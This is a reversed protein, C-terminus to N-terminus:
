TEMESRSSSNIITLTRKISNTKAQLLTDSPLVIVTRMIILRVIKLAGLDVLRKTKSRSSFCSSILKNQTTWLLKQHHNIEILERLSILTLHLVKMSLLFNQRRSCSPLLVLRINKVLIIKSFYITSITIPSEVKIQFPCIARTSLLQIIGVALFTLMWRHCRYLLAKAVSTM